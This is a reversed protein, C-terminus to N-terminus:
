KTQKLAVKPKPRWCIIKILKAQEVSLTPSKDPFFIKTISQPRQPSNEKVVRLSTAQACLGALGNDTFRGKTPCCQANRREIHLDKQLLRKLNLRQIIKKSTLKRINSIIKPHNWLTFPFGDFVVLVKKFGEYRLM